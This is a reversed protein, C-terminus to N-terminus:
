DDRLCRICFGNQKRFKTKGVYSYYNHMFRCYAHTNSYETSTWWYAYRGKYSFAGLFNRYGSPFASFGSSNNSQQDNGVNGAINHSQWGSKAAMSKAVNMKNGEFGYGNNSLYDLLIEWEDDTPVHWGKPCLNKNGNSVLDVAFWNYLAGYVAKNSSPDNNYWCYAPTTLAAWVSDSIVHPIATGDSYKTTKLNESMWVQNGIVVTKYVNGEIDMIHQAQLELLTIWFVAVWISAIVIKNQM